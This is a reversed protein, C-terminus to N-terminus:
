ADNNQNFFFNLLFKFKSSSFYLQIMIVPSEINKLHVLRESNVPPVKEEFKYMKM